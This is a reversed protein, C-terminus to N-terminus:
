CNIQGSPSSTANAVPSGISAQNLNSIPFEAMSMSQTSNPTNLSSDGNSSFSSNATMSSTGPVNALLSPLGNMAYPWPAPANTLSGQTGLANSLSTSIVPSRTPLSNPGTTIIGQGNQQNNKVNQQDHSAQKPKFIISDRQVKIVGVGGGLRRHTMSGSLKWLNAEPDYVEVTKLYSSGDFGGIAYIKNAVVALGVKLYM